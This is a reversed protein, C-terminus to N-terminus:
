TWHYLPDIGLRESLTYAAFATGRSNSGALWVANSTTWVQYAEWQGVLKQKAVGQPVVTSDNLTVLRVTARGGSPTAVISPKYGSIREIDGALFVAAQRVASNEDASVVIECGAGNGALTVDGPQAAAGARVWSGRVPASWEQARLMLPFVLTCFTVALLRKM